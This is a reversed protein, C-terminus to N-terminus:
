VKNKYKNIISSAEDETIYSVKDLKKDLEKRLDQIEGLVDDFSKNIDFWELVYGGNGDSKSRISMGARMLTNFEFLQLRGDVLQISKGDVASARIESIKILARSYGIVYVDVVENDHDIVSIVQGSYATPDNAVYADAENKSEFISTSDIPFDGQRIFSMGFEMKPDQKYKHQM